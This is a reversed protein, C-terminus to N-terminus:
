TSRGIHNTQVKWRWPPEDGPPLEYHNRGPLIELPVLRPSDKLLVRTDAAGAMDTPGARKRLREWGFTPRYLWYTIEVFGRDRHDVIQTFVTTRRNATTLKAGREGAQPVACSARQCYRFDVPVLMEGGPGPRAMPLPAFYRLLRALPWGYASVAPHEGCTEGARPGCAIRNAVRQGLERGPPDEALLQALALGAFLLSVLLILGTQEVTASGSSNTLRIRM